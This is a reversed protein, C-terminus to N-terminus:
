QELRDVGLRPAKESYFLGPLRGQILAYDDFSQM